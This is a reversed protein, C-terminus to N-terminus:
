RFWQRLYAFFSMKRMQNIEGRDLFRGKCEPCEDVIYERDPSIIKDMTIKKRGKSCKPCNIMKEEMIRKEIEEM